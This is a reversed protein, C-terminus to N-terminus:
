SGRKSNTTPDLGTNHIIRPLTPNEPPPSPRRTSSRLAAQDLSRSLALEASSSCSINSRSRSLLLQSIHGDVFNIVISPKSFFSVGIQRGKIGSAPLGGVEKKGGEPISPDFTALSHMNLQTSRLSILYIIVGWALELKPIGAAGIERYDM